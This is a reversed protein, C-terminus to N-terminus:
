QGKSVPLARFRTPDQWEDAAGTMDGFAFDAGDLDELVLEVELDGAFVAFAEVFHYLALARALFVRQQQGGSLQSIQRNAYDAMGVLDLCHRAREREPKEVFRAVRHLGTHPKEMAKGLRIYGYGTEPRTPRVGLTVLAGERRATKAARRIARAFRPRTSPDTPGSPRSICAAALPM